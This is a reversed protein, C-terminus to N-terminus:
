DRRSWTAGVCVGPSGVRPGGLAWSEVALGRVVGVWCAIDAAARRLTSASGHVVM